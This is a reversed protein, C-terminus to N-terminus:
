FLTFNTLNWGRRSADSGLLVVDRKETRKHYLMFFFFFFFFSFINLRTPKGRDDDGDLAQQKLACLSRRV